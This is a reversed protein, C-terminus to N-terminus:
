RLFIKRQGSIFFGHILKFESKTVRGSKFIDLHKQCLAMANYIDINGKEFIMQVGAAPRLCAECSCSAIDPLHFHDLYTTEIATM